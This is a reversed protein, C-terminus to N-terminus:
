LITINIIDDIYAFLLRYIHMHAAFQWWCASLAHFSNADLSSPTGISVRRPEQDNKIIIGKWVRKM